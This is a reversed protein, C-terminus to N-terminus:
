FVPDPQWDQHLMFNMELNQPHNNNPVDVHAQPPVVELDQVQDVQPAPGDVEQPGNFPAANIDM